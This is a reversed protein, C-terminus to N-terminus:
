GSDGQSSFDQISQIKELIAKSDTFKRLASLIDSPLPCPVIGTSQYRKSSMTQFGTAFRFEECVNVSYYDFRVSMQGCKLAVLRMEIRVSDLETVHKYIDLSASTTQWALQRHAVAALSKPAHEALFLERCKGQWAVLEVPDSEVIRPLRLSFEFYPGAPHENPHTHQSVLPLSKSIAFDMKGAGILSVGMPDVREIATSALYNCGAQSLEMSIRLQDGVTAGIPDSFHTEWHAVWLPLKGSRVCDYVDPQNAQLWRDRCEVQWRFYSLFYVNGIVNTDQFTITPEYLAASNECQLLMTSPM